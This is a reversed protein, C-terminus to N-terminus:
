IKTAENLMMHPIYSKASAGHSVLTPITTIDM